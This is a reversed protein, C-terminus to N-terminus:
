PPGARTGGTEDPDDFSDNGRIRSALEVWEDAWDHQGEALAVAAQESCHVILQAAGCKPCIV